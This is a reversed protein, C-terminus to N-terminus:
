DGTSAAARVKEAPATAFPFERQPNARAAPGLPPTAIARAGSLLPAAHRHHVSRQGPRPEFLFFLMTAALAIMVAAAIIETAQADLPRRIVEVLVYVGLCLLLVSLFSVIGCLTHAAGARVLLPTLSRDPTRQARHTRRM